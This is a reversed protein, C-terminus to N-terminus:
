NLYYVNGEEPPHLKTSVAPTVGSQNIWSRKKNVYDKQVPAPSKFLFHSLKVGQAVYEPHEEPYRDLYPTRLILSFSRDSV